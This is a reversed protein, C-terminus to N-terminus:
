VQACWPNPCYWLDLLAEESAIIDHEVIIFSRGEHWINKLAEWYADDRDSLPLFRVDLLPSNLSARTQARLNTYPVIVFPKDM